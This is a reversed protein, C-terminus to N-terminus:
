TKEGLLKPAYLKPSILIQIVINNEKPVARIILCRTDGVVPTKDWITCFYPYWQDLLMNVKKMNKIRLVSLLARSLDFVYGLTLLETVTLAPKFRQLMGMSVNVLLAQEFVRM